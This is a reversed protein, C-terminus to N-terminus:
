TGAIARVKDKHEHDANLRAKKDEGKKIIRDLFNDEALM